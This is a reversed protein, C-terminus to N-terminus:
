KKGVNEDFIFEFYLLSVRNVFIVLFDTEDLTVGSTNWRSFYAHNSATSTVEYGRKRVQNIIAADKNPDATTFNPIIVSEGTTVVRGNPFWIGTLGGTIVRGIDRDKDFTLRQYPTYFSFTMKTLEMIPHAFHYISDRETVVLDYIYFNAAYPKKVTTRFHYPTRGKVAQGGFEKIYIRVEDEGWGPYTGSIVPRYLRLAVLGRLDGGPINVVGISQFSDNTVNFEIEDFSEGVTINNRYQSHFVGYRRKLGIDPNLRWINHRTIDGLSEVKVGGDRFDVGKGEGNERREALKASYKKLADFPHQTEVFPVEESAVLQIKRALVKGVKSQIKKQGFKETLKKYKEDDLRCLMGAVFDKEPASLRRGLERGTCNMVGTANELYWQM